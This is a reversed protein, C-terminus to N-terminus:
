AVRALTALLASPEVRRRYDADVDAAVVKGQRDIVFTAPVPLSWSEDANQLRLDLQFVDLHVAQLDDPLEFQPRYDRIVHQTADSLVDFELDAKEAMSLSHDPTQPSVAILSAGKKRINPLIAQLARLYTNCYPCWEGRYFVLVAPGSALRDALSVQNGRPDPLTFVPARDGVALGPAVGSTRVEDISASMRAGIEPPIQASVEELSRNLAGQNTM